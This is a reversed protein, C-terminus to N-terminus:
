HLCFSPNGRCLVNDNARDRWADYVGVAAFAIFIVALLAVVTEILLATASAIKNIQATVRVTPPRRNFRACFTVLTPLTQQEYIQQAPGTVAKASQAAQDVTEPIEGVAKIVLRVLVFLIGLNATTAFWRGASEGIAMLVAAAFLTAFWWMHHHVVVSRAAKRLIKSPRYANLTQGVLDGKDVATLFRNLEVSASPTCSASTDIFDRVAQASVNLEARLVRFSASKEGLDAAGKAFARKHADVLAHIDAETVSQLVHDEM